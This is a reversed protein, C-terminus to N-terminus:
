LAIPPGSCCQNRSETDSGTSDIVNHLGSPTVADVPAWLPAFSTLLSVLPGAYARLLRDSTRQLASRIQLNPSLPNDATGFQYKPADRVAELAINTVM